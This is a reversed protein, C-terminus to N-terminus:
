LSPFILACFPKLVSALCFKRSYASRICFAPFDVFGEPRQLLEGIETGVLVVNPEHEGVLERLETAFLLRDLLQLRQPRAVLRFPLSSAWATTSRIFAISGAASGRAVSPEREFRATIDGEEVQSIRWRRPGGAWTRGM